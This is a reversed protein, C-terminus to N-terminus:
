KVAEMLWKELVLRQRDDFRLGLKTRRKLIDDATKAWEKDILWNVECATLGYGFDQGLDNMCVADGLVVRANTGYALVMRKATFDTIFPYHKQLETILAPVGDVAFDGGPLAATATWKETMEPLHEQLKELAAEALKRYTTIKGGFVSLVAPQNDPADVRLVYDRTAAAASSAGDEYLPRVGSYSSVIHDITISEAFYESAAACLYDAEEPSCVALLPDETQDEETTGIITFDDLYPIAFIIRGDTQQFIYAKDHEYLKKVIIHSGRVLRIRASGEINMRDRIVDEVWPGAANAITKAKIVENSNEIQVLWHEGQRKASEVKTQCRIDAGLDAASRANLVTLRADDVWCDSYEFGKTFESKLPKGQECNQLNLAKTAPLIKRGGLHDYMFLGIRLLWAPRLGKHHPLIFRMPKALHPMARLLVEREILAKRVLSFEYYELYRLGGHFLKTSGSSTAQALDGMELLCVSLGRGAADRAIGCGNIGGGIVCLDYTKNETIQQDNDPM